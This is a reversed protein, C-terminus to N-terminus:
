PDACLDCPLRGLCPESGSCLGILYYKKTGTPVVPIFPLAIPTPAPLELKAPLESDPTGAKQAAKRSKELAATAIALAAANAKAIKTKFDAEEADNLVPAVIVAGASHIRPQPWPYAAPEAIAQPKAGSMKKPADAADDVPTPPIAVQFVRNREISLGGESAVVILACCVAAYLSV